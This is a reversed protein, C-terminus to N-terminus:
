PTIGHFDPEVSLVGADVGEFFLSASATGEVGDVFEELLSALMAVGDLQADDTM